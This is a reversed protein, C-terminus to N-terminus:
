HKKYKKEIVKFVEESVYKKLEEVNAKYEKKLFESYYDSCLLELNEDLKALIILKEDIEKSIEKPRPNRIPDTVWLLESGYKCFLQYTKMSIKMGESKIKEM